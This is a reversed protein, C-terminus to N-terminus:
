KKKFSGPLEAEIMEKVQDLTFEKAEESTVRKDNIKPIKINKKKFRIFPGWRGNEVSIGLDDWKHIYRNAEKEVKAAILVHAEDVTLEDFNYKRPVNVYLNNWKVFPGFRGKGKTIPLGQYTGFPADAKKKEEILEIARDMTIALPEEGRPISIFKEGHKVYPGFRGIGISVEKSEYDGMMRPM